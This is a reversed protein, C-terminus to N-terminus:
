CASLSWGPWVGTSWCSVGPSNWWHMSALSIRVELM